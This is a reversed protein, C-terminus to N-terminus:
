ATPRVMALAEVPAGAELAPARAARRVLANSLSFVSLLSSDQEAHIAAIREGAGSDTIAARLYHERASNAPFPAALKASVTALTADANGSLMAEIMPALFLRACVLASAPNGPLGVLLAGPGTAFWTPKGPRVAIKSFALVGGADAFAGRVHDHDGVSAGGVTVLIDAGRAKAYKERVADPSDGARGLYHPAGGWARILADLVFRNSGVIEGHALNEGPEKLEDGNDFYAVVPKKRVEVAAINAAAILGLDIATLREGKRKLLQNIAFDIGAERINGQRSQDGTIVVSAGDKRTDEQIVVHDAGDPVAGGTFIRVAEGRGVARSAPSGAAAEGIVTLRAGASVDAFRVAYGDMASARFPPQNITAVIDAALVRGAGEGIAIKEIKTAAAASLIASVAEDVSIM